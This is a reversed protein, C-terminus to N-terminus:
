NASSYCDVFPQESYLISSDEEPMEFRSLLSGDMKDKNDNILRKNAIVVAILAIAIILLGFAILAAILWTM